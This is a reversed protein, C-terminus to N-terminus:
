PQAVQTSGSVESITIIYNDNLVIVGSNLVNGWKDITISNSGNLNIQTLDTNSFINDSLSVIGNDSGPFNTVLSGDKKIFYQELNTDYTITMTSSNALALEKTLEIDSIIQNMASTVRMKSSIDVIQTSAIAGLIGLLAIVVILEILSFGKNSFFYKNDDNKM